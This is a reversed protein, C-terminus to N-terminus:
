KVVTITSAISGPRAVGGVDPGVNAPVPFKNKGSEASRLAPLYPKAENDYAYQASFNPSPKDGRKFAALETKQDFTKGNTSVDSPVSNGCHAVWGNLLEDCLPSETEWGMSPMVNM